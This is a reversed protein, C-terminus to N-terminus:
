TALHSWRKDVLFCWFCVLLLRSRNYHEAFDWQTNMPDRWTWRTECLEGLSICPTIMSHDNLSRQAFVLRVSLQGWHWRLRQPCYLARRDEWVGVLWCDGSESLVFWTLSLHPELSTRTFSQHPEVLHSAVSGRVLKTVWTQRSFWVFGGIM